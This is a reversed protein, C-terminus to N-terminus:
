GKRMENFAERQQAAEKMIMTWLTINQKIKNNKAAGHLMCSKMEGVPSRVRVGQMPAMSDVMPRRLFNGIHYKLNFCVYKSKKM